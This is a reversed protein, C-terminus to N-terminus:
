GTKTEMLKEDGGEYVPVGTLVGHFRRLPEGIRIGGAELRFERITREHAGGRRKVVSIAQRIEGRAEFYRLLVVTDALYTADVPSTMSSGILGQHAAVILTAVGKQGLYALIEHLQISLYREGPMANLYGNLSDLVVIAARDVEVARRIENSFEGPSLEAPDIPQVRVLGADLHRRLGIGLGDTRDLLTAVSEDFIFMAGPQGRGAAAAVFQAALSSKGTGAAGAFLTSTGQDIGGGLLKDLEHNDSALKGATSGQRHEAAVLRPYVEFGGRRITCDHYGGRFRAGRLKSVVLRRREAGYDPHAQDLAIVGHAISQVQLDHDKATRDDLMLVTCGRGAFYHKFALVQRRYRLASGALLRIESLSDLVLRAPKRAEVQALIRETAENLEVESPHFVTYRDDPDLGGDMVEHIALEDFSWGHSEAIAHLESITESLSVHLVPEGRRAGELLFQLALTTKGTGPLGEIVYLQGATLGGRLVEDLGEIGTPALQASPM